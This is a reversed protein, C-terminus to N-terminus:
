DQEKSFLYDHHSLKQKLGYGNKKLLSAVRKVKRSEILLWDFSFKTFDIGKLVELEAGEVDLSLLGVRKPAGAIELAHTMTIAPVSETRLPEGPTPDKRPASAHALPDSVDSDLGIAISMLNGYIMDVSSEPYDESVCASRLLYNRRKSRNRQLKKFTSHIPEILLGNWGYFLELALTNSHTVGDNAGIEVYYSSSTDITKLVKRDLGRLGFSARSEGKTLLRALWLIRFGFLSKAFREANFGIHSLQARLTAMVDVYCKFTRKM